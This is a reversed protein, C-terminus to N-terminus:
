IQSTWVRLLCPTALATRCVAEDNILENTGDYREELDEDYSWFLLAQSSFINLCHEGWINSAYWMHCLAHRIKCIANQIDWTVHWMDCTSIHYILMFVNTLFVIKQRDKVMFIGSLMHTLGPLLNILCIFFIYKEKKKSTNMDPSRTSTFFTLRNTPRKAEKRTQGM